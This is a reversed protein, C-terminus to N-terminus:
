EHVGTTVYKHTRVKILNEITSYSCGLYSSWHNCFDSFKADEAEAWDESITIVEDPTLRRGKGM